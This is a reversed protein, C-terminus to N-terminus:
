RFNTEPAEMEKSTMVELAPATALVWSDLLLEIKEIGVADTGEPFITAGPFIM